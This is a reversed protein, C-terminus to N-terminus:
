LQNPAPQVPAKSPPRTSALPLTRAARVVNLRPMLFVCFYRRRTGPARRPGPAGPHGLRCLCATKFVAPERYSAPEFGAGPM